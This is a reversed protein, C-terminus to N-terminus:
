RGPGDEEDSSDRFGEELDRSLRRDSVGRGLQQDLSVADRRGPLMAGDDDDDLDTDDAMDGMEEDPRDGDADVVVGRRRGAYRRFRWEAWRSPVVVTIVVDTFRQRLSTTSSALSRQWSPTNVPLYQSYRQRHRRYV